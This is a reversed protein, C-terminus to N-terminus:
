YVPRSTGTTCLFQDTAYIKLDRSIKVVAAATFRSCYNEFTGIKEVHIQLQVAAPGCELIQKESNGGM